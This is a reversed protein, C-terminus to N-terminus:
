ITGTKLTTTNQKEACYMTGSIARPKASLGSCSGFAIMTPITTVKMKSAATGIDTIASLPSPSMESTAVM